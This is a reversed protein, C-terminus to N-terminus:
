DIKVNYKKSIANLINTRSQILKKIQENTKEAAAVVALASEGVTRSTSVVEETNSQSKTQQNRLPKPM